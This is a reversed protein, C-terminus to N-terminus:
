TCRIQLFQKNKINVMEIWKKANQLSALNPETRDIADCRNVTHSTETVNTNLYTLGKNVCIHWIEPVSNWALCFIMLFCVSILKLPWKRWEQKPNVLISILLPWMLTWKVKADYICSAEGSPRNILDLLITPLRAIPPKPHGYWTPCLLVNKHNLKPSEVTKVHRGVINGSCQLQSAHM